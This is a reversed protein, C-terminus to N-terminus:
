VGTVAVNSIKLSLLDDTVGTTFAFIKVNVSALAAIVAVIPEVVKGLSVIKNFIGFIPQAISLTFALEPIYKEAFKLVTTVAVNAAVIVPPTTVVIEMISSPKPYRSPCYLKVNEPPLGDTVADAVATASLPSIWDTLMTAPPLPYEEAGDTVSNAGAFFIFSMVGIPIPNVLM